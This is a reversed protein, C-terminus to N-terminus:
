CALVPTGNVSVDGDGSVEIPGWNGALFPTVACLADIVEQPPIQTTTTAFCVEGVGGTVTYQACLQRVGPPLDYSGGGWTHASGTGHGWPTTM